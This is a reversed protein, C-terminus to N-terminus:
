LRAPSSRCSWRRTAARPVDACKIESTAVDCSARASVIATFAATLKIVAKGSSAPTFTYVVDAGSGGGCASGYHNFAGKTTGSVSAHLLGGAGPAFTLTKGPCTDGDFASEVACTASCGDDSKTNGDDCTEGSEIKGNGCTPGGGEAVGAEAGAEPSTGSEPLMAGGADGDAPREEPSSASCAAVVVAAGLVASLSALIRSM